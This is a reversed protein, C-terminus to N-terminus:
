DRIDASHGSQACIQHNLALVLPWGFPDNVAVQVGPSQRLMPCLDILPVKLWDVEGKQLAAAATASGPQEVWEVRQVNV